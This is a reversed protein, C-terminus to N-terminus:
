WADIEDTLERVRSGGSWLFISYASPRGSTRSSSSLVRESESWMARGAKVCRAAASHECFKIYGKDLNSKTTMHPLHYLGVLEGYVSFRERAINEEPMPDVWVECDLPSPDLKPRHLM